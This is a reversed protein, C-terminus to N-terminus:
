GVSVPQQKIAAIRMRYLDATDRATDRITRVPLINSRLRPLLTADQVLQRVAETWADIDNHCVLLGDVQHRVLERIGGLDSGVIPVKWANAELVVLPGTEALQSPVGLVDINAFFQNIASRSQDSLIQIHPQGNAMEEIRKRYEVDKRNNSGLALVKLDFRITKPLRELAALLVHLGKATNWRGLFGIRLDVGSKPAMPRAALSIEPDVGPRVLFVKNHSIGNVHLATKLWQSGAIICDASDAVSNLGSGQRSVRERTSFPSGIGPIRSLGVSIRAPVRSIPVAVASPVGRSLLFCWTCREEIIRGDCQAKGGCLMMGTLCVLKALHITIFTPIGLEKAARLHTIGCNLSWDHQHYVDPRESSLLNRFGDACVSALISQSPAELWEGPYHEVRINRYTSSAAKGDRAPVAVVCEIGLKQLEDALGAVYIETGGISTPLFWPIGLVVKL